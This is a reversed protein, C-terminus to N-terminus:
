DEARRRAPALLLPRFVLTRPDFSTVFCQLELSVTHLQKSSRSIYAIKRAAGGGQCCMGTVAPVIM